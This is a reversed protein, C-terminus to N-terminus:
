IALIEVTITKFVPGGNFGTGGEEGVERIYFLFYFFYFLVVVEGSFAFLDTVSM